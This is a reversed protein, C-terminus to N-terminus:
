AHKLPTKHYKDTAGLIRRALIIIVLIIIALLIWQVLGSPAFSNGGMIASAGLANYKDTYSVEKNDASTNSTDTTSTNSSTNKVTTTKYITRTPGPVYIITPEPNTYYATQGPQYLPPNNYYTQAGPQYNAPPYQYLYATNSANPSNYPRSVGEDFASVSSIGITFIGLIAFSM